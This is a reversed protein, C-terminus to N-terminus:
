KRPVKLRIEPKCRTYDSRGILESNKLLFEAHICNVGTKSSDELAYFYFCTVQIDNSDTILMRYSPIRVSDFVVSDNRILAKVDEIERMNSSEINSIKIQLKKITVKSTDALGEIRYVAVVADTLFRAMLPQPLIISSAMNNLGNNIKNVISCSFFFILILFYEHRKM